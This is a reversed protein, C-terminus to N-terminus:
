SIISEMLLGGPRRSAARPRSAPACVLSSAEALGPTAFRVARPSASARRGWPRFRGPRALHRMRARPTMSMSALRRRRRELVTEGRDPGM